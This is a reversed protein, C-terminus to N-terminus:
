LTKLYEIIQFKEEEELKGFNIHGQNSQGKKRTKYIYRKNSKKLKSYLSSNKEPTTLGVKNKNFRYAEGADRMSFVDIRETPNSLLEYLNPVSGNHLYPFRAWIGELRPAFYGPEYYNPRMVDFLPSNEVLEYFLKTNGELRERDTKVVRSPIHKPERYIPFGEKDKQYAGHCKMCKQKFLSEGQKALAQDIEFPYKPPLLNGVTDSLHTLKKMYEPDRLAEGSQGAALEVGAVWGPYNGNAGGDWFQGVKKKETFGWFHPVKVAGVTMNDPIHGLQNEYFWYRIMSIPVLGVTKNSFKKNGLVEAFKKSRKFIELFEKNKVVTRYVRSTARYIKTLDHGIQYVDVSKNGLGPIDIGAARGSHCFACGLVGVPSGKYNVTFLGKINGEQDKTMGYRNKVKKNALFSRVYRSKNVISIFKPPLVMGKGDKFFHVRKLLKEAEQHREVRSQAIVLSNTAISFFAIVLIRRM